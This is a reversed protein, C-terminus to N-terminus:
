HTPEKTPPSTSDIVTVTVGNNLGCEANDQRSKIQSATFYAYIAPWPGTCASVKSPYWVGELRGSTDNQTMATPSFYQQASAPSGFAAALLTAGIVVLRPTSGTTRKSM